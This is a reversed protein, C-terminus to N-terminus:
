PYAQHTWHMSRCHPKGAPYRHPRDECYRKRKKFCMRDEIHAESDDLAPTTVKPNQSLWGLHRYFVLSGQLDASTASFINYHIHWRTGFTHGDFRSSVTSRNDVSSQSEPTSASTRLCRRKRFVSTTELLHKLSAPLSASIDVSKLLGDEYLRLPCEIFNLPM